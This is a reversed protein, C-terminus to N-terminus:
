RKKVLPSDALREVRLAAGAQEAESRLRYPGTYVRYWIGKAGLDAQEVFAGYGKGTLRKQLGDAGDKKKVSAVQVVFGGDAAIAPMAVKDVKPATTKGLASENVAAASRTEAVSSSAVPAEDEVRESPPPLNVGSGLPQTGEVLSDYFTLQEAPATTTTVDMVTADEEPVAIAIRESTAANEEAVTDSGGHGVLVGLGFSVLAIVLGLALLGLAQKKELRRQTRTAGRTM